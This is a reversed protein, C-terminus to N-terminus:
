LRISGCPFGVLDAGLGSTGLLCEHDPQDADTHEKEDGHNGPTRRGFGGGDEVGGILHRVGSPVDDLVFPALLLKLRNELGARGPEAPGIILDPVQNRPLRDVPPRVYVLVQTAWGAPSVDVVLASVIGPDRREVAAPLELTRDARLHKGLVIEGLKVAATQARSAGEMPIPGILREEAVRLVRIGIVREVGVSHVITMAPGILFPVAPEEDGCVGM